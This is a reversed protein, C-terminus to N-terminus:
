VYYLGLLVLLRVTNAILSFRLYQLNPRTVGSPNPKAPLNTDGAYDRTTPMATTSRSSSRALWRLRLCHIAISFNPKAAM